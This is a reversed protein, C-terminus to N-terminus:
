WKRSAVDKLMANDLMQEALLKKLKAVEDELAKLKRSDSVVLGGFKAKWKYFTASSIGHQRCVDTTSVGSEQQKLIAGSLSAACRRDPLPHDAGRRVTIEEYDTEKSPVFEVEIQVLFHTEPCLRQCVGGTCIGLERADVFLFSDFSCRCLHKRPQNREARTPQSAPLCAQLWVWNSM